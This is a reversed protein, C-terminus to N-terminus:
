LCNAPKPLGAIRNVHRAVLGTKFLQQLKANDIALNPLKQQLHKILPRTTPPHSYSDYFERVAYLIIFHEDTLTVQLNDALVQALKPTWDHHNQLHGDDDLPILNLTDTMLNPKTM